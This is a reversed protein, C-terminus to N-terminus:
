QINKLEQYSKIMGVIDQSIAAQDALQLSFEISKIAWQLNAKPLMAATERYQGLVERVRAMQKPLAEGLSEFDLPTDTM